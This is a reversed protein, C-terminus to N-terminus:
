DSNGIKAANKGKKWEQEISPPFKGMQSLFASLKWIQDDSFVNGWGPMGTFRIGHKIIYFNENEPMDPADELFRPAPPYFSSGLVPKPDEPDGHCSACNAKYVKSAEILNADTAPIPNRTDPAHRKTSADLVQMAYKQEFKSPTQDARFSFLGLDLFVYTGVAILSLAIVCGMFVKM